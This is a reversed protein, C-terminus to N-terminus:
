ENENGGAIDFGSNKSIEETQENICNSNKNESLLSQPRSRSKGKKTKFQLTSKKDYGKSIM